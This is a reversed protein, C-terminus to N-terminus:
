QYVYFSPQWQSYFIYFLLSSALWWFGMVRWKNHLAARFGGWGFLALSIAGFLAVPWTNLVVTLNGFWHALYYIGLITMWSAYALFAWSESMKGRTGLRLAVALMVAVMLLYQKNGIVENAVAAATTCCLAVFLFKLIQNGM